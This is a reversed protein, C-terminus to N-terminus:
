FLKGQEPAPPPTEPAPAPVRMARARELVAPLKEFDELIVRRLSQQHLAAAPHYMPVYYRGAREAARGHIRSIAQGPFYRAMSFRGLTVIVLPDILDIQEELFGRCAEIEGPLPDRNVPPRCKLVNCIYVGSRKLGAAALLEDLFQGAQGVFPRGQRDENMGPAEGIFMVEADLPGEGPVAQTRTRALVCATCERIRAYLEDAKGAPVTV